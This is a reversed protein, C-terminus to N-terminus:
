RSGLGGLIARVRGGRFATVPRERGDRVRGHSPQPAPEAAAGAPVSEYIRTTTTRATQREELLRFRGSDDVVQRMEPMHYILVLRRPNRDLSAIINDLVKRFTEGTFPNFFYAYTMDDPVAFSVADSNIFEVDQCALRHRNRDFNRVAIEHLQESIEVGIVRGFPYNAAAQVVRGMGSGFDVFVDEPGVNSKPLLARLASWRSPQYAEADPHELGLEAPELRRGTDTEQRHDYLLWEALHRAARYVRLLSETISSFLSRM